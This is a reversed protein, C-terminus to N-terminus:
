APNTTSNSHLFLLTDYQLDINFTRCIPKHIYITLVLGSHQLLFGFLFISHPTRFL